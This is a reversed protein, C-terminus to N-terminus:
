EQWKLLRKEVIRLSQTLLLGLLIVLVLSVFLNPIQLKAGFYSIRFGLGSNSSFMEGVIVGILAREVGIRWGTVIMPVASPLAIKLLIQRKSAGFSRAARILVPNTGKVGTYTNIIIPTIAFLFGLMVVTNFGLGLWIILLPYFAIIPTSYLFWLFPDIVYEVRQFWGMLLGASVGIVAASAFAAIFEIVTVRFDAWLDSGTTQEIAAMLIQYPSSILFPNIWGSASVVQWLIIVLFLGAIGLILQEYKRFWNALMTM